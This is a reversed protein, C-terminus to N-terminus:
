SFHCLLQVPMSLSIAYWGVRSFLFAYRGVQFFRWRPSKEAFGIFPKELVSVGGPGGDM